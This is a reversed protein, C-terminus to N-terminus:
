CTATSSVSSLWRCHELVLTILEIVGLRVSADADEIVGQTDVPVDGSGMGDETVFVGLM